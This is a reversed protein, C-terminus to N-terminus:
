RNIHYSTTLQNFVQQLVIKRNAQTPYKKYTDLALNTVALKVDGAKRFDYVSIRGLTKQFLIDPKGIERVNYTMTGNNNFILSANLNRLCAVLSEDSAPRTPNKIIKQVEIVNILVGISEVYPPNETETCATEDLHCGYIPSTVDGTCNEISCDSNASSTQVSVNENTSSLMVDEVKIQESLKTCSFLLLFTAIFLFIKKM